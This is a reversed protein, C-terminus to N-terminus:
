RSVQRLGNHMEVSWDVQVQCKPLSALFDEMLQEEQVRTRALNRGERWNKRARGHIHISIVHANM